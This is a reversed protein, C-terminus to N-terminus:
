EKEQENLITELEAVLPPLEVTVTQWVIDLNIDFYGHILRNRMAVMERWPLTSYKQRFLESIKAAAEGMIEVSKVLSLVLMRDQDLDKRNRGISFGIAEQAADIMHRLRVLDDRYM